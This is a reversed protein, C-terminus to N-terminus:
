EEFLDDLSICMNPFVVRKGTMEILVDADKVYPLDRSTGALVIIAPVEKWLTNIENETLSTIDDTIVVTMNLMNEPVHQFDSIEVAGYVICGELSETSSESYACSALGNNKAIEAIRKCLQTKGSNNPGIIAIRKKDKLMDAIESNIRAQGQIINNIENRCQAGIGDTPPIFKRMPCINSERFDKMSEKTIGLGKLITDLAVTLEPKEMTM